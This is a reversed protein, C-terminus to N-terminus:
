RLSRVATAKRLQAEDLAFSLFQRSAALQSWLKKAKKWARNAHNAALNTRFWRLSKVTYSDAHHFRVRKQTWARLALVSELVCVVFRFRTPNRGHWRSNSSFCFLLRSASSFVTMGTFGIARNFTCSGLNVTIAGVVGIAYLGALSQFNTATM